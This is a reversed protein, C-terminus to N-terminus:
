TTSSEGISSFEKDNVYKKILERCIKILNLIQKKKFNSYGFEHGKNVLEIGISNKNLNNFYSEKRFTYNSEDYNNKDYYFHMFHNIFTSKGIGKDGTLMVVKPLKNIQILNKFFDFNKEYGILKNTNKPNFQNLLTM